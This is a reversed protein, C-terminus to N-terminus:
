EDIDIDPETDPAPALPVSPDEMEIYVPDAEAPNILPSNFLFLLMLIIAAALAGLGATVAVIRPKRLQQILRVRHIRVPETTDNIYDIGDTGDVSNAEQVFAIPPMDTRVSSDWNKGWHTKFRFGAEPEYEIWMFGEGNACVQTLLNDLSIRADKINDPNVSRKWVSSYLEDFTLYEDEKRVLMELANFERASLSLETGMVTSAQKMQRNLNLPGATYKLESEIERIVNSGDATGVSNIGKGTHMVKLENEM